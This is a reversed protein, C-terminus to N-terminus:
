CSGYIPYIIVYYCFAYAMAMVGGVPLLERVAQPVPAFRYSIAAIVALIGLILGKAFNSGFGYAILKGKSDRCYRYSRIMGLIWTTLLIILLSFAHPLAMSQLETVGTAPVLYKSIYPSVGASIIAFVTEM